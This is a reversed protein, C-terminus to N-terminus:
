HLSKKQFGSGNTKLSSEFDFLGDNERFIVLHELLNAPVALM